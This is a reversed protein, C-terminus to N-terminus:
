YHLYRNENQKVLDAKALKAKGVRAVQNMVSYMHGLVLDHWGFNPICRHLLLHTTENTRTYSLDVLRNKQEWILPLKSLQHFPLFPHSPPIMAAPYCSPLFNSPGLLTRPLAAGGRCNPSIEPLSLPAFESTFTLSAGEIGSIHLTRCQTMM